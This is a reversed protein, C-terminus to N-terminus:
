GPRLASRGARGPFAPRCRDRRGRHRGRRLATVQGDVLPTLERFLRETEPSPILGAHAHRCAEMVRAAVPRVPSPGSERLPDLATPLEALLGNMWRPSAAPRFRGCVSFFTRYLLQGTALDRIPARRHKLARRLLLHQRLRAAVRGLLMTQLHRRLDHLQHPRVDALAPSADAYGRPARPLFITGVIRM